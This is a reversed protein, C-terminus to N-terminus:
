GDERNDAIGRHLVFPHDALGFELAEYVVDKVAETAVITVAARNEELWTAPDFDETLGEITEAIKAVEVLTIVITIFPDHRLM